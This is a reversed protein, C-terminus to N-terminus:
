CVVVAAVEVDERDIGGFQLAVDVALQDLRDVDVAMGLVRRCSGRKRLASSM